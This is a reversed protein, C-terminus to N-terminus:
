GADSQLSGPPTIQSDVSFKKFLDHLRGRRERTDTIIGECVDEAGNGTTSFDDTTDEQAATQKLPKSKWDM